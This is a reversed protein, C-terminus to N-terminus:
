DRERQLIRTVHWCAGIESRGDSSIKTGCFSGSQFFKSSTMKHSKNNLCGGILFEPYALSNSFGSFFKSARKKQFASASTDKTRPRPRSCEKGQSRSPRDKSLNDKTRPRPSKKHGQGQGRANHGRSWRQNVFSVNQM